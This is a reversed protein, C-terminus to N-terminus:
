GGMRKELIYMAARPDHPQQIRVIHFGCKNVYFHHNRRSFAPTESRWVRADPYKQEMRRWIRLGLGQDQAATDVFMCGLMNEGNPRPWIIVCGVPEGGRLVKYADSRPNLAFRRLFTGDDYGEPGGTEGGLHRRSDEDFARKMIATMAPVDEPLFPALTLDKQM